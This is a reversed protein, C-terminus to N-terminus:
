NSKSSQKYLEYSEKEMQIYAGIRQTLEDFDVKHGDFEPGDVCAFKTKGDISVRCAGCMGTADIMISNLSVLTKISHPRTVNCVAKMMPVPGIAVVLDIKLGEDLFQQLADTVFGHIGYSGDDTSIRVKSSVESMEEEMVVLDQTRAGIISIVDNGAGKLAKAIPYAEATGVGGGIVVATGVKEIPTPKGLPGVIDLIQDGKEFTQFDATTKGIEQVALVITGKEPDSDVVTLPIREGKERLRVIVFQGAQRKVAIRPAKIEFWSIGPALIRKDIIEFL